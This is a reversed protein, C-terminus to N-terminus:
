TTVRKRPAAVPPAGHRRRAHTELAAELLSALAADRDAEPLVLVSDTAATLAHAAAGRRYLVDRMVQRLGTSEEASRELHRRARRLHQRLSRNDPCATIAAALAASVVAPVAGPGGPGASALDPALRALRPRGADSTADNVLRALYALAQDTCRPHDSFPEGALVSVYEMLCAGDDPHLHAGSELLPLQEPTMSTM